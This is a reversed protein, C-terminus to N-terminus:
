TPYVTRAMLVAAAFPLLRLSRDEQASRDAARAFFEPKGRSMLYDVVEWADAKVAAELTRATPVGREGLLRQVLALNGQSAAQTIAMGANLQPDAGRDLLLEMLPWHRARVARALAYGSHSNPSAGFHDILHTVFDLDVDLNDRGGKGVRRFLRRPLDRCVLASKVEEGPKRRALLRRELAALVPQTCIPYRASRALTKSADKTDSNRAYLYEVKHVVSSHFLRYLRRSVLPL